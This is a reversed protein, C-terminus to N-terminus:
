DGKWQKNPNRLSAAILKNIFELAGDFSGWGNDPEMERLREANDEMHERLKRLIKLAVSGQAGYIERIGKDPYCDYWMSAVNYTYNFDEDGIQMDYSM